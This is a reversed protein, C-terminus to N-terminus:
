SWRHWTYHERVPRPFRPWWNLPPFWRTRLAPRPIWRSLRAYSTGVRIPTCYNTRVCSSSPVLAHRAVKEAVSGLLWRKMGTYGHSSLIVLDIPPEDAQAIIAAAPNGSVVRTQVVTGALSPDHRWQELYSRAASLEDEIIGQSIYAAGMGYTIADHTLDVVRLLTVTGQSARALRAVVPLVQEARSSGDLPVLLHRFM